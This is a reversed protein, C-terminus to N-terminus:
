SHLIEAACIGRRALDELEVQEARGAPLPRVLLHTRRDVHEENILGALQTEGIGDRDRPGCVVEDKETIRLLELLRDLSGMGVAYRYGHKLVHDAVSRGHSM